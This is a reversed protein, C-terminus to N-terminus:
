RQYRRLNVPQQLPTYRGTTWLRLADVRCVSCGCYGRISAFISELAPSRGRVISVQLPRMLTEERVRVRVLFLSDFGRFSYLGCVRLCTNSLQRRLACGVRRM